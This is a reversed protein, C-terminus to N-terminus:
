GHTVSIVSLYVYKHSIVLTLPALTAASPYLSLHTPTSGQTYNDSLQVDIAQLAIRPAHRPFHAVDRRTTRRPETTKWFCFRSALASQSAACGAWM